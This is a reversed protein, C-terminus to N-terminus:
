DGFFLAGFVSEFLAFLPQPHNEGIDFVIGNDGEIRFPPHGAPVARGCADVAIPCLLADSTIYRNEIRLVLNRNSFWGRLQLSGNSRAAKLIISPTNPLVPRSEPGIYNDGRQLILGSTHASEQFNRAVGGLFSSDFLFQQSSASFQFRRVFFQFRKGVRN